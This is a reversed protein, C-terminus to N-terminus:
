RGIPGESSVLSTINLKFAKDFFILSIDFFANIGQGNTWEM